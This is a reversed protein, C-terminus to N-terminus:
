QLAAVKTLLERPCDFHTENTALNVALQTTQAKTAVAGTEPEIILYDIKLRNEWEALTAQVRVVQEFRIPRIYKIRMDVVPFAFGSDRMQNYSYGIKELLACRARELFRAYNGHWVVNM